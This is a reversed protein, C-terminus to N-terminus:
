GQVDFDFLSITEIDSETGYDVVGNELGKCITFRRLREALGTNRREIKNNKVAIALAKKTGVLVVMKKARTIATYILNRQLMIFHQTTIPMIVVPYESGQSKHVSIAYSLVVEDLEYYEYPVIREGDADSYSIKVVKDETDIESIIGIDGNFVMKGYNNKIQMVKDGLRFVMAGFKVEVKDGRSPNLVDQLVLNLNEVGTITRRMPTVVQIDNVADCELFRPLRESVVQMITDRIKEPEPEEMFFFDRGNNNIVPFEGKNVRHANVVIMSQRAQRFIKKLEVVEVVGSDIIDKLVNGPGVSPLQDVDGVLILRTGPKIAKTLNYMLLVDIMSAEDIIIVDGELPKEEGRGFELGEGEVFGFELLRHITKASRHTAEGMRKAARGTPAALLVKMKFVDFMRIITNITTTKGTGPGGTLVMVGSTLAKRCAQIQEPALEIRTRSLVHQLVSEPDAELDRFDARSLQTLRVALGHEAYFFPALYVADGNGVNPDIFILRKAVLTKLAKDVLESEVGLMESGAAILEDKPLYVHGDDSFENLVFRIGSVIRAESSPDIGVKMAISDAIKFGIGFIDDALVYPTKKVVEISDDGYHKYIKAAYGPSIGLGQLFVMVKQVERHEEFSKLIMKQKKEGIGEVSLLCEPEKEIVTLTDLGFAKVLRKAMVPGVGKIMGSALYREIGNLTAPTISQYEEVKFQTGYDPHTTWQGTIRLTEGISISVFSGVVTTLTENGDRQIKAVTNFNEENRFTIREVIGQIVTM